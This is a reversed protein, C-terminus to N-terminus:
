VFNEVSGNVCVKLDVTRWQSGHLSSLEPSKALVICTDENMVPLSSLSSCQVHAKIGEAQINNVSSVWSFLLHAIYTFLHVNSPCWQGKRM